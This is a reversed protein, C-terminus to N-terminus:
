SAMGLPLRRLVEYSFTFYMSERVM